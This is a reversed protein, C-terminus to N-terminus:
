LIILGDEPKAIYGARAESAAVHVELVHLRDQLEIIKQDRKRLDSFLINLQQDRAMIIADKDELKSQLRIVLQECGELQSVRATLLANEKVLSNHADHIKDLRATLTSVQEYLHTYLGTGIDDKKGEVEDVRGKKKWDRLFLMAPAALMLLIAVIVLTMQVSPSLGTAEAVKAIEEVQNM